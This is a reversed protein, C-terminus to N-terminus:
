SGRAGKAESARQNKEGKPKQPLAVQRERNSGNKQARQRRKTKLPGQAVGLAVYALGLGLVVVTTLGTQRARDPVPDDYNPGARLLAGGLALSISIAVVAFILSPVGPEKLTWVAGAAILLVLILDIWLQQHMGSVGAWFCYGMLLGFAVHLSVPRNRVAALSAPAILGAVAICTVLMVRRVTLLLVSIAVVHLSIAVIFLPASEGPDRQQADPPPHPM